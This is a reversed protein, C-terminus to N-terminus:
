LVKRAQVKDQMAEDCEIRSITKSLETPTSLEDLNPLNLLKSESKEEKKKISFKLNFLSFFKNFPFIKIVRIGKKEQLKTLKNPIENHVDPILLGMVAHIGEKSVTRRDNEFFNNPAQPGTIVEYSPFYVCNPLQECIMAASVRLASKSYANALVVNSHTATAVLPVPSVTLVFRVRPNSERILEAAKIFDEVIENVTFNKFQYKKPDFTGRITGPCASYVAGDLISIWSETLGLTFIIVSAENFAKLSNDLHCKTLAQFEEISRANFRMGPRFPDIYLQDELWFSEVPSYLSKARQIFKLFHHPTYINGYVASFTKYRLYNPFNKFRPHPIETRIYNFKYSDLYPILNSAFCSGASVIKDNKTLFPENSEMITSINFGNSVTRKWFSKDPLASYPNVM